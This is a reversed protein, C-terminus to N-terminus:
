ADVKELMLLALKTARLFTQFCYFSNRDMLGQLFSNKFLTPIAYAAELIEPESIRLSTQARSFIRKLIKALRNADLPYWEISVM